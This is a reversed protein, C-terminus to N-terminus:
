AMRATKTMMESADYTGMTRHTQNDNSLLDEELNLAVNM